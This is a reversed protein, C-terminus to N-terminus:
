QLNQRLQITSSWQRFRRLHSCLRSKKQLEPMQIWQQAKWAYIQLERIKQYTLQSDFLTAFFYSKLLDNELEWTLAELQIESSPIPHRLYPWRLRVRVNNCINLICCAWVRFNWATLASPPMGDPALTVAVARISPASAHRHTSGKRTSQRETISVQCCQLPSVVKSWFPSQLTDNLSGSSMLTPSPVNVNVTCSPPLTSDM